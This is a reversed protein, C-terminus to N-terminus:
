IFSIVDYVKHNLLGDFAYYDFELTDHIFITTARQNVFPFLLAASSFDQSDSGRLESWRLSLSNLDNCFCNVGLRWGSHHAPIVSRAKERTFDIGNQDYVLNTDISPRFYLWEGEIQCFPPAEDFGSLHQSTGILCLALFLFKPKFNM